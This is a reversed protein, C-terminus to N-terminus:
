SFLAMDNQESSKQYFLYRNQEQIMEDMIEGFSAFGDAASGRETDVKHVLSEAYATIADTFDDPIIFLDSDATLRAASKYYKMTIGNTVATTLAQVFYIFNNFIFYTRDTTSYPLTSAALIQSQQTPVYLNGNFRLELIARLDTPVGDTTGYYEKDAVSSFTAVGESFWWYHKRMIARYAANIYSLRRAKENNNSPASNEGLRLALDNQIDAVTTAM